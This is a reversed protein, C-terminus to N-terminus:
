QSFVKGNINLQHEKGNSLIQVGSFSVLYRSKELDDFFKLWNTLAGAIILNFNIYGPSSQDGEKQSGFSFALQLNNQKALSNLDRSFNLLEDQRPLINELFQKETKAKEFDSRLFSLVSATKSYSLAKTKNEQIILARRSIDFGLWIVLAGVLLSLLSYM